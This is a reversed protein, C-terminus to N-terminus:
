SSHKLTHACCLLLVPSSLVQGRHRQLHRSLGLTEEAAAEAARAANVPLWGRVLHMTHLADGIDPM